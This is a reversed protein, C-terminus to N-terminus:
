KISHLRSGGAWSYYVPATGKPYLAALKWFDANIQIQQDLRVHYVPRVLRRCTANLRAGSDVPITEVIMNPRTLQWTTPDGVTPQVNQDVREPYVVRLIPVKLRSGVKLKDSRDLRRPQFPRRCPIKASPGVGLLDAQDQNGPGMSRGVMRVPISCVSKPPQPGASNQEESTSQVPSLSRQM